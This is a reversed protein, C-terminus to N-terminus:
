KRVGEDNLTAILTANRLFEQDLYARTGRGSLGLFSLGAARLESAHVPDYL